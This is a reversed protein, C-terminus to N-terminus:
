MGGSVITVVFMTVISSVFQIALFSVAYFLYSLIIKKLNQPSGLKKVFFQFVFFMLVFIVLSTLNVVFVNNPSDKLVNVIINLIVVGPLSILLCFWFSKIWSLDAINLYKKNIYLFVQSQLVVAIVLSILLFSIAGIIGTM